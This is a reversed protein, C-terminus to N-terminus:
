VVICTPRLDCRVQRGRQAQRLCPNGGIDASM